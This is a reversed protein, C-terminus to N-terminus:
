DGQFSSSQKFIYFFEFNLGIFINQNKRWLINSISNIAWFWIWFKQPLNSSRQLRIMLYSHTNDVICYKTITFCPIFANQNTVKCHSMCMNIKSRLKRDRSSRPSIKNTKSILKIGMWKAVNSELSLSDFRSSFETSLLLCRPNKKFCNM